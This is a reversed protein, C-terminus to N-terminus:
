VGIFTHEFTLTSAVILEVGAMVMLVQEILLLTIKELHHM